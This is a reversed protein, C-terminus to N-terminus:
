QAQRKRYQSPSFSSFQKFAKSFHASDVFGISQAIETIPMKTTEILGMAVNMKYTMIYTQPTKGTEKKFYRIFHNPHMHAIKSLEANTITKSANDKIYSLIDSLTETSQSRVFMTEKESLSMYISILKLIISKIEVRESLTNSNKIKDYRKFLRKIETNNDANVFFDLSNKFIDAPSLDFHIWYKEFVKDHYNTYSHEVGAPIFFWQGASAHYTKGRITMECEGKTIYYFKNITAKHNCYRWTDGIRAIFKGGTRHAVRLNDIYVNELSKM